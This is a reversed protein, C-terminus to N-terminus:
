EVRLGKQSSISSFGGKQGRIKSEPFVHGYVETM